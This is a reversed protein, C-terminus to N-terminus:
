SSKKLLEAIENIFEERSKLLRESTEFNFTIFDDYDGSQRRDFIDSYFKAFKKEILNTQIFHLGFMQRTGKHTSPTIEKTLLLASVAYYCSYYIRNISANYFDNAIMTEAEKLTEYARTLRYNILDNYMGRM